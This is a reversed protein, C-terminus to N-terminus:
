IMLPLGRKAVNTEVVCQRFDKYVKYDLVATESVGQFTYKESNKKSYAFAFDDSNPM